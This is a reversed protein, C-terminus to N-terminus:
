SQMHARGRLEELSAWGMKAMLEEMEKVIEAFVGIGREYVATGLGVLTAGALIMELADRGTSVGGTGIIPIKVARYIDYVCKIAIPKLAAGSIGGTKNKLVPRQMEVDILMGPMTNIATIADAGASEVAKAIEAINPVNPGLKAILPLKIKARAVKVTLEAMDTSCAFPLGHEEGTNPCSMDLEIADPNAESLRVGAETIEEPTGGLVSAIVPIHPNRKKFDRLEHIGAEVGEGSLGVANLMGAGFSVVTPNNHGMRPELALSKSTVGGVGNAVTFSMASASTGMIGSALILPNRFRLQLFSTQLTAM